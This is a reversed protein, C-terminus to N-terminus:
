GKSSSLLGRLVGAAQKQLSAPHLRIDALVAELEPIFQQETKPNESNALLEDVSVGLAQAIAVIVSLKFDTQLGRELRSIVSANVKAVDALEYQDWGRHERLNKIKKNNLLVM